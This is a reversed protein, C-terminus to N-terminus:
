SLEASRWWDHRSTEREAPTPFPYFLLHAGDTLFFGEGITRYFFDHSHARDVVLTDRESKRLIDVTDCIIGIDTYPLTRTPIDSSPDAIQGLILDVFLLKPVRVTSQPNTIFEGFKAPQLKSLVTPHIPCLEQYLRLSKGDTPSYAQPEEALDKGDRTVLHLCGFAEMPIREIVRYISLTVSHKPTGDPHASVADMLSLDFVDGLKTRDVELVIARGPNRKRSGVALYPAFEKPPLMSAVLAEPFVSMYLHTDM